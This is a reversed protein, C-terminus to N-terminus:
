NQSTYQALKQQYFPCESYKERCIHDWMLGPILGDHAACQVSSGSGLWYGEYEPCPSKYWPKGKVLFFTAPETPDANKFIWGSPLGKSELYERTETFGPLDAFESKEPANNEFMFFFM